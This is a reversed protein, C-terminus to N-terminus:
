ELLRSLHGDNALFFRVMDFYLRLILGLVGKLTLYRTRQRATFEAM